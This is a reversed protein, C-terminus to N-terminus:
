RPNPFFSTWWAVLRLGKKPGKVEEVIPSIVRRWLGTTSALEHALPAALRCAGRRTQDRARFVWECAVDLVYQDVAPRGAEMLDLVFSDRARYDAHM